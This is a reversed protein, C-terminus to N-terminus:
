DGGFGIGNAKAKSVLKKVKEVYGQIDCKRELGAANMYRVKGFIPREKWPRDHLGFIWAVNAYGNPDRGDLFYRNNLELAIQFGEEPTRSWELIKKGWYMRMSNHMYGTYKMELMSANWYPDHTRASELEVRSYLPARRDPRHHDLTQRAWRPLSAYQDYNATFETFNQALERRVILEELFSKKSEAHGACERAALAIQVPSIQGFHLHMSMHSVHDTQPQNRTESYPGFDADFFRHLKKRAHSTGGVFFCSVAPVTHDLKMNNLLTEIDSLDMGVIALQLDTRKLRTPQLDVLYDKLLRQIKPRITRAAFEAKDTVSEVPVVVDAEVQVVHCEAQHALTTRWLKQHRLYGRDCVVLAADKSFGLAVEAPQGLQLVFKIGRRELAQQTEQLGELMFRYHRVNAEPYNDMLGFCVLLPVNRQNAQQVAFELAHNFEARQSQQMWYLVYNGARDGKQNLAKIRTDQINILAMQVSTLRGLPFIFSPFVQARRRM